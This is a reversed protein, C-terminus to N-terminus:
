ATHALPPMSENEDAAPDDGGHQAAVQEDPPNANLGVVTGITQETPEPGDDAPVHVSLKPAPPALRGHMQLIELGFALYDEAGRSKPAYDFVCLGHSPSEALKINRRIFTEFVRAGAWPTNDNRGAAFFAKLDETVEGGLRTASEHMCLLVGDVTLDPNIRSQVLRITELLQSVGQLSLFHAQMPITVESAASLANLTLIGLSPPCDIIVYDYGGDDALLADRLITERGIISILETEAGALNISSTIVHVRESIERRTEALARGQTLLACADPENVDPDLGLHLTLHAQPDLDILLVRQDHRSLAVGLNVATTTKGVGGKQNIIAICHM